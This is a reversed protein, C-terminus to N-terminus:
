TGVIFASFATFSIDAGHNDNYPRSFRAAPTSRRMSGRNVPSAATAFSTESIMVVSGLQFLFLLAVAILGGVGSEAAILGAALALALCRCLFLKYRLPGAQWYAHTMKV